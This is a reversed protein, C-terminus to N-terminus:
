GSGTPEAGPGRLQKSYFWGIGILSFGLAVFSAIRLLGELGAADLLFVKAVAGLMLVLSAIRWDRRQKRAGWLLFGIALLIALVSRLVDELSGVPVAMLLSGSFAQRLTSFALMAVLLMAGVQVVPDVARAIAPHERVLLWAAVAPMAYLLILWNALPLAGVAQEAWLPNLQVLGYFIAHALASGALATVAMRRWPANMAIRAVAWAAGLLLAQWFLRQAIGTAIFDTGAAAAFGHRYLGHLAVIGLVGAIAVLGRALASAVRDKLLWVTGGLLLAPVLLQQVLMAPAPLDADVDFPIGALSGLAVMAWRALPQLGWGILLVLMVGVAPALRPWAARRTALALLVLAVGPAFLLLGRPMLQALAGYATLAAMIQALAALSSQKVRWAVLGLSATVGAWRLLALWDPHGSGLGALREWERELGQGALPGPGVSALAVVAAAGFAFAIKEFRADLAREGGFLLAASLLALTLPFTWVALAFFGAVALLAATVSALQAYRIDGHREGSRWGTILGVGSVAAAGLAIWALAGDGIHPEFGHLLVDFKLWPLLFTAIAIVSLDTAAPLGDPRWLKFHLPVVHVALMALAVVTYLTPAPAPWLFLLVAALGASLRPVLAFGPERWALWQGAIAILVYLGWTTPAYGGLAVLAGLQALGVLMALLRVLGQRTGTHGLLPAAVALGIVLVGVSLTSALDLAGGAILVLTWLGGGVLTAIGLWAWRQGRGVATLGAVTLALYAALMPINPDASDILAPTAFGGALALLATPAGFRSALALAAATVAAMAAFTALPGILGHVNGAVFAAAYLTALGAGALAQAVRPDGVKLKNQQAAEAGALLGFGFMLAAAVQVWPTLLGQALAYNVILVGAVALTIGGAWIPLKRGFFDEFSFAFAPKAPPAPPTAAAASVSAAPEVAAAMARTGADVRAGPGSQESSTPAPPPAARWPSVEEEVQASAPASEKVLGPEASEPPRAPIEAAPVPEVPGRSPFGDRARARDGDDVRAKLELQALRQEAAKLRGRTDALLAGILTLGFFLLIEM